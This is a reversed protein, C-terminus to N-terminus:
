KQESCSESRAVGPESYLLPLYNADVGRMYADLRVDRCPTSAEFTM